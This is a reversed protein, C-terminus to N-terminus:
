NFSHKNSDFYNYYDAGRINEHEPIQDPQDAFLELQEIGSKLISDISRYSLRSLQLARECAKEMRDNGYSKALQLIGMCQKYATNPYDYQSILRSIYRHCYVGINSAQREFHEVSWLSYAKASPTLHDQQTTYGGPRM